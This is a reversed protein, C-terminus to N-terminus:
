AHRRVPHLATHASDGHGRMDLAYCHFQEHLARALPLYARGCFGNAHLILLTKPGGGGLDHLALKAGSSAEIFHMVGM